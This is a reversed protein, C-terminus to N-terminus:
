AAFDRIIEGNEAIRTVCQRMYAEAQDEGQDRVMQAFSNNYLQSGQQMLTELDVGRNKQRIMTYEMYEQMQRLAASDSEIFGQTRKMYSAYYSIKQITEVLAKLAYTFFYIVFKAFGICLSLVINGTSVFFSPVAAFFSRFFNGASGGIAACLIGFVLLGGAGGSSGFALGILAGVVCGIICIVYRSKITAYNTKLTSVNEQVLEQTCDFCLHKGAYQGSTVGYSDCCDKCLNKGCRVCRGAAPEDEHYYCVFRNTRQRQPATFTPIDKDPAKFKPISADGNTVTKNGDVSGPATFQPVDADPATFAPISDSASNQTSSDITAGCFPCFMSDDDIQKGCSGCYM